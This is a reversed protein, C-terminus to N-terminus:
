SIRPLHWLLTGSGLKLSGTDPDPDSGLYGEAAEKTIPTLTLARGYKEKLANQTEMQLAEINADQPADLQAILRCDQLKRNSVSEEALLYSTAM